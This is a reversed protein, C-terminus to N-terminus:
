MYVKIKDEIIDPDEDLIFGHHLQNIFDYITYTM